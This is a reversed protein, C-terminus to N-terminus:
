LIKELEGGCFCRYGTYNETFKSKRKRKFEYGCKKCRIIHKVKERNERYEKLEKIVEDCIGSEGYTAVRAIEYGYKKRIIEGYEKWKAGHNMCGKCTHLIEHLLTNYLGKEENRDDLLDCSIEIRYIDGNKTTRGLRSKARKNVSFDTIIGYPIGCNKAMHLANEAYENLDRYAM